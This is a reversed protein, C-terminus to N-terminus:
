RMIQEVEAVLFHLHTEFMSEPSLQKIITNKQNRFRSKTCLGPIKEADLRHIRNIKPFIM